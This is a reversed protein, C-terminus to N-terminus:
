PPPVFPPQGTLLFHAVACVSYIASRADLDQKADAQQPSMYAPTGAIAGEQTLGAVDGGLGHSLVLGFDLLKAVDHQGGRECTIINSPKIDRHILGAAHAEQLAGCTQRLLHVAREPPLPGHRKVLQELNLGPLYEMAYYFTGDETHGYDFVQVTNAATVSASAQLEGEFRLFSNTDTTRDPRILKVACPRRLLLHEGPCVEGM